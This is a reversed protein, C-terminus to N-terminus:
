PLQHGIGHQRHHFRLGCGTRINPFDLNRAVTAGVDQHFDFYGGDAAGVQVDVLPVAPCLAADMRRENGPVLETAFHNSVAVFDRADLCAVEDGGFHVHGTALAQLAARALGM